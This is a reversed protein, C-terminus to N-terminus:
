ESLALSHNWGLSISAVRSYAIGKVHVPKSVNDTAGLGLQGHAGFGFAFVKGSANLYM